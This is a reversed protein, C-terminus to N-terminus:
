KAISLANEIEEWDLVLLDGSWGGGEQQEYGLFIGSLVKSGFHHLRSKDKDTIPLYTIEAGFPILPGSFSSGLRREFATKNDDLIDVVAKLFCYCAMAQPWWADDLGSQILAASTGEKVTRM